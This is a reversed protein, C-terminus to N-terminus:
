SYIKDETEPGAGHKNCVVRGDPLRYVKKLDCVDETYLLEPGQCTDRTYWTEAVRIPVHGAPVDVSVPQGLQCWRCPRGVLASEVPKLYLERGCPKGQVGTCYRRLAEREAALARTARAAILEKLHEFCLLESEPGVAAAVAVNWAAVAADCGPRICAGYSM